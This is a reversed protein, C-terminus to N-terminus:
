LSMLLDDIEEIDDTSSEMFEDPIDYLDDDEFDFASELLFDDLNDDFDYASETISFEKKLKELSKDYQKQTIQGNHLKHDLGRKKQNFKKPTKKKKNPHTQAQDDQKDELRPQGNRGDELQRQGNEEEDNLKSFKNKISDAVDGAKNKVYSGAQLLKNVIAVIFEGVHKLAKIFKNQSAKEKQDETKASKEKLKQIGATVKESADKACGTIMDAVASVAVTVIPRGDAAKVFFPMTTLAALGTFGLTALVKELMSNDKSTYFDFASFILGSVKSGVASCFSKFKQLLGWANKDVDVKSDKNQELVKRAKSGFIKDKISKFFNIIANWARSLLGEKKEETNDVAEMYLNELTNIDGSEEMCRLEAEAIDLEQQKCVSEYALLVRDIKLSEKMLDVTEQMFETNDNYLVDFM